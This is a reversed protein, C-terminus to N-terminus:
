YNCITSGSQSSFWSTNGGPAMFMCNTGGDDSFPVMFGFQSGNQRWVYMYNYPSNKPDNPISAMYTPVLFSSLNQISVESNPTGLAGGNPYVGNADYYIELVKIMQSADAKRRANRAKVRAMNLAVLVVSSLLGIIAIVVLLEILTFGKQKM